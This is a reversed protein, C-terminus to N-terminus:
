FQCQNWHGVLRRCEAGDRLSKVNGYVNIGQDVITAGQFAERWRRPLASAVALHILTTTLFYAQPSVNEGWAGIVPNAEAGYAVAESTQRLDVMQEAVFTAELATNAKTWGVCGGLSAVQALLVLKLM